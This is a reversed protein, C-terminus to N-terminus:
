CLYDKLVELYIEHTKKAINTWSYKTAIHISNKSKDKFTNKESLMKILAKAVSEVSQDASWGANYEEIEDRMNSGTTVVVPLGYSLAEILGMPMGEFRSTLIFLDSELLKEEKQKGLISDNIYVLDNIKMNKLMNKLEQVTGGQDVGHMELIFNNKRLIDQTKGIAELLIDLGKQYKEYRGIYVAKIKNSSFKTKIKDKQNIGNPVVFSKNKWKKESELKEQNSLYHIAAAKKAFSNFYLFNGLIKKYRKKKQAQETMQSRPIIIYPIQKSQIEKIIKSFPYLYFEEVIVLDPYNFPYPLSDLSETPYDLMNKCGIKEWEKRKKDNINYWFINDLKKQASIQAPVSNNPGCFLEGSLKSIYLINLRRM